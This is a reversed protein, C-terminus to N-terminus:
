RPDTFNLLVWGPHGRPHIETGDASHLIWEPHHTRVWALGFGALGCGNCAYLLSRQQWAATGPSTGRITKPLDGWALTGIVAAYQLGLCRARDLTPPAAPALALPVGPRRVSACAPPATAASNGECAVAALLAALSVLAILLRM